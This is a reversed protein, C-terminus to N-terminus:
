WLTSNWPPSSELYLLSEPRVTSVFPPLCNKRLHIKFTLPEKVFSSHQKTGIQLLTLVLWLYLTPLSALSVTRTMKNCFWTDSHRTEANLRMFDCVTPLCQFYMLGHILFLQFCAFLKWYMAITAKMEWRLIPLSGNRLSIGLALNSQVKYQHQLM